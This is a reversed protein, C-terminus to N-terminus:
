RSRCTKIRDQLYSYLMHTSYFRNCILRVTPLIRRWKVGLCIEIRQTNSENQKKRCPKQAIYQMQISLRLANYDISVLFIKSEGFFNKVRRFFIDVIPKFFTCFIKVENFYHFTSIYFYFTLVSFYFTSVYFYFTSVYFYFSSIYFYFNFRLFLFNFRLFLFNFHAEQAEM